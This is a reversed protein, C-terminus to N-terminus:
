QVLIPLGPPAMFIDGTYTHKSPYFQAASPPVMNSQRFMTFFGFTLCVQLAPGLAGLSPTITCLHHLLPPLIPLRGLPPMRMSIDAARLLCSVRFSELSHSRNGM